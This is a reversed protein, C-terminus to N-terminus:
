AFVQELNEVSDGEKWQKLEVYLSAQITGWLVNTITGVVLTLAVFGLPMQQQQMALAAANMGGSMLMLIGSLASILWYVILLVLLIGFIKWRAGRTLERSRSFAYLVGGREQVLAPTAVSWMVYLIVGPVIFFILGAMVALGLLVMLVVLPLLVRLGAGLSEAFSAHRQEGEAVTARTLVAQTLAMIMLSLLWSIVTIGYFVYVYNQVPVVQGATATRILASRLIGVVYTSLFTPIAGFLFALGLTVLPNHAITGFALGFVRDASMTRDRITATVTAM